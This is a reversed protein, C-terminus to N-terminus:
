NNNLKINKGSYTDTQSHCNPCLLRLNEIRNDNNVGNIHDLQLVLQRGNWSPLQGCEYCENKLLGKNILRIKLRPMNTYKSDEVLIDDLDYRKGSKTFHSTDLNMDEIEKKVKQYTSQGRSKYGLNRFVDDFSESISVAEEISM